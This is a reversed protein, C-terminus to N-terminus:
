WNLARYTQVMTPLLSVSGKGVGKWSVPRNRRVGQIQGVWHFYFHLNLWRERRRRRAGGQVFGSLQLTLDGEEAQGSVPPVSSLETDVCTSFGEWLSKSRYKEPSRHRLASGWDSGLADLEPVGLVEREFAGRLLHGSCSAPELARPSACPSLVSLCGKGSM